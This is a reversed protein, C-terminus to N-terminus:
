EDFFRGQNLFTCLHPIYKGGDKITFTKMDIQAKMYRKIGEIIEDATAELEIEVFQGSDKDMTRTKFGGKVIADFKAKALPKKAKNGYLKWAEEFRSTETKPIPRADEPFLSLVNAQSM